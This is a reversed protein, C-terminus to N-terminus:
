GKTYKFKGYWKTIRLAYYGDPSFIARTTNTLITTPHVSENGGTYGSFVGFSFKKGVTELERLFVNANSLCYITTIFQTFQTRYENIILWKSPKKVCKLSFPRYNFTTSDVIKMEILIQLSLWFGYIASLYYLSWLICFAFLCRDNFVSYYYNGLLVFGMIVPNSSLHDSLTPLEQEVFSVRQTVWVLM